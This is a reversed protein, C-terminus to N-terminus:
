GLAKAVKELFLEVVPDLGAGHVKQVPMRGIGLCLAAAVSGEQGGMGDVDDAGANALIAVQGEVIRGDGIEGIRQLDLDDGEVLGAAQLLHVIATKGGKVVHGGMGQGQGDRGEHRGRPDIGNDGAGGLGLRDPIGQLRRQARVARRRDQALM